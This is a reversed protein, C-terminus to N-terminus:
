KKSFANWFIKEDRLLMNLMAIAAGRSCNFEKRDQSLKVFKPSSGFIRNEENELTDQIADMVFPSHKGMGSLDLFFHTPNFIFTLEKVKETIAAELTRLTNDKELNHNSLYNNLFSEFCNPNGCECCVEGSNNVNADAFFSTSTHGFETSSKDNAHLLNDKYWVGGGVRLNRSGEGKRSRISFYVAITESRKLLSHEELSSILESDVDNLMVLNNSLTPKLAPVLEILRNFDGRSFPNFREQSVIGPVGIGAGAIKSGGSKSNKILQKTQEIIFSALEQDDEYKVYEPLNTVRRAVCEGLLDFLGIRLDPIELDIGILHYVSPNLMYLKPKRGTQTDRIGKLKVLDNKQMKRLIKRVTPGSIDTIRSIKKVSFAGGKQLVRFVKIGASNPNTDSQEYGSEPISCFYEKKIKIVM